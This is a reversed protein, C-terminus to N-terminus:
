VGLAGLLQRVAPFEEALYAICFVLLFVLALISVGSPITNGM